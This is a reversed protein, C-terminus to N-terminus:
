QQPRENAADIAIARAMSREYWADTEAQRRSVPGGSNLEHLIGPLASPNLRRRHWYAVARGVEDPSYGEGLLEKVQKGLIAKIRQPPQRPCADVWAGIIAQTTSPPAPPYSPQPDPRRSAPPPTRRTTVELGEIPLLHAQDHTVLPSTMPSSPPYDNTPRPTTMPSSAEEPADAPTDTSLPATPKHMVAYSNPGGATNIERRLWGAEVLNDLARDLTSPSVGVGAALELRGPTATENPGQTLDLLAWLCVALPTVRRDALLEPTVTAYRDPM